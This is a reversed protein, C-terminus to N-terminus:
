APVCKGGLCVLGPCCPRRGPICSANGGACSNQAMAKPAALSAVLPLAAIGVGLRKVLQRRTLRELAAADPMHELLHARALSELALRVLQEDRPLGLEKSLLAALKAVDQTGDCGRWVLAAAPNLRHAKDRDLDYIVLEGLFDQVALGHKRAVPLGRTM